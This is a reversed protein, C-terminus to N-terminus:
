LADAPPGATLAGAGLTTETGIVPSPASFHLFGM